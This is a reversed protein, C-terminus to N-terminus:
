TNLQAYKRSAPKEGFRDRGTDAVVITRGIVAFLSFGSPAPIDNIM